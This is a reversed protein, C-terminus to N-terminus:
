GCVMLNLMLISKRLIRLIKDLKQVTIQKIIVAEVKM